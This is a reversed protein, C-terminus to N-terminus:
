PGNGFCAHLSPSSSFFCENSDRRKKAAFCSRNKVAVSKAFGVIIYDFRRRHALLFFLM